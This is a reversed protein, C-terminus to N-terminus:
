RLATTSHHTGRNTPHLQMLDFPLERRYRWLTDGTRADLALVQNGPTTIFMVGDNVIPPAQHGETMGTSFAWVPHLGAVNDADIQDLPSYGWGDYTRRYMLWNEPEPDVLRQDTVPSYSQAAHGSAVAPIAGLVFIVLIECRVARNKM